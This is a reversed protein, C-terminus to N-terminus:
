ISNEKRAPKVMSIFGLYSMGVAASLVSGVLIAIKSYNLIQPESFSLDALFLSMTFGIGGLMAGGFIHSWRVEQPLSALGTKVSLYSFLM